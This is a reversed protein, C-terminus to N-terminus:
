KGVIQMGLTFVKKMDSPTIGNLGELLIMDLMDKMGEMVKLRDQIAKSSFNNEDLKAIELVLIEWGGHAMTGIMDTKRGSKQRDADDRDANRRKASAKLGLEGRVL